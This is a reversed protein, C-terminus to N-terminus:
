HEELKVNYEQIQIMWGNTWAYSNRGVLFLAEKM